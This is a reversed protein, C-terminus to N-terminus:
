GYRTTDGHRRTVIDPLGRPNYAISIMAPSTSGLAGERAASMRGAGDRVFWFKQGDPFTMEIRGGGRDYQHSVTRSFGGMSSTTSLIRGFGDYANSIGVGTSTFWAATQLGRLDYTYHVDAAIGPADKIEVRNLADFTYLLKQNDRKRLSTRNGNPDYGYEEYDAPNVAGPTTKSPFIWRAQRGHGDYTMEARYGRADILAKRRGAVDYEFTDARIRETGVGSQAQILQGAADYVNRTIRDKLHVAHAPGPVCKDTLPTDWADPNMRAATCKSRGALDYNFEVVNTIVGGGRVVNRTKRDLADYDTDVEMFVTFNSWSAPAVNDPQWAALEGQEVKILRGALDYSNRVAAPGLPGTGDPDPAITGTVRDKVDYRTSVTHALATTPPTMPCSSVNAEPGTESIKRGRGDYAYCTRLTQGDATVTQSRPLLNNPGTAPGYDYATIVEDAAGLACGGGSAPNGTRCASIQDLLWIPPGAADGNAVRAQRQVYAYRKQPTVVESGVYIAPATETKVGGHEPWYTWTTTLGRGDTMSLPKNASKSIGTVYVASTVIPAPVTGDPNLAGPRPFRKAEIVNLNGDYKLETRSGDPGIVARAAPLVICRNEETAPLGAMAAPDCYDFTTTRNLPDVISVPGPTQQYVYTTYADEFDPLRCQPPQCYSGPHNAGPAVPWDYNVETRQNLADTYWGGAITSSRYTVYPSGTFAYTFSQGDAFAQHGVIEQPVELEDNRLTITNTLWPTTQGPKVFGMTIGGNAAAAYTFGSVANDSGTVSVLRTADTTAYGYSTTPVGAPCTGGAPVAATEALNLVCARTVLNGSGELLLAFGRSSTVRALRQTGGAAGSPVYDFTYRTGDAETIDSVYACNWTSSCDHALPRFVLEKGDPTTYTYVIGGAARDGTYTLPAALGPSIQAMTTSNVYPAEYTQSRGDYHVNVQLDHTDFENKVPNYTESVMIDWNHSLNAFPNGHGGVTATLTRTLALGGMLLDTENYAYRGTRMDVGGPATVFKEAPTNILKSEEQAAAPAALGLAVLAALAWTRM